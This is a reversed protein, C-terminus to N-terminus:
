WDHIFGAQGSALVREQWAPLNERAKILGREWESAAEIMQEYMSVYRGTQYREIYFDDFLTLNVDLTDIFGDGYGEVSTLIDNACLETYALWRDELPISTDKLSELVPTMQAQIVKHAAVLAAVEQHISM